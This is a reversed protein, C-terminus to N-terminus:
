LLRVRSEAASVLGRSTGGEEARGGEQKVAVWRWQRDGSWGPNEFDGKDTHMGGGDPLGNRKGLIFPEVLIGAVGVARTLHYVPAPDQIDV